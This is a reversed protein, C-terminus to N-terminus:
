KKFLTKNLNNKNGSFNKPFIKLEVEPKRIEAKRQVGLEVREGKLRFPETITKEQKKQDQMAILESKVAILNDNLKDLENQYMRKQLELSITTSDQLKRYKKHWFDNDASTKQSVIRDRYVIKEEVKTETKIKQPAALLSDVAQQLRTNQVQLEAMQRHQKARIQLNAFVSGALILGFFVAAVKWWVATKKPRNMNADLREWMAEKGSFATNADSEAFANKINHELKDM